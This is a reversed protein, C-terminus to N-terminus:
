GGPLREALETGVGAVGATAVTGVLRDDAEIRYQATGTAARVDDDRGWEVDLADGNLRGTGSVIAGTVLWELRYESGEARITLSGSYETGFADEGNVLWRGVFPDSDDRNSIPNPATFWALVVIFLVIGIAWRVPVSPLRLRM